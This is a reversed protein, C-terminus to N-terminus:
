VFNYSIKLFEAEIMIGYQDQVRKRSFFNPCSLVVTDADKRVFAVPEIWMQYSHGPIRAKLATKVKNWIDDM